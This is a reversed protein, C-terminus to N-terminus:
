IIILLCSILCLFGIFQDVTTERAESISLDFTLLTLLPFRGTANKRPGGLDYLMYTNSQGSFSTMFMMFSCSFPLALSM